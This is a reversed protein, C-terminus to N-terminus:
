TEHEWYDVADERRFYASVHREDADGGPPQGAMVGIKESDPYVLVDPDAMTSIALYRLPEDGTNEIQHAGEPGAPLAVYTGPQLAVRAQDPGRLEGEGDLVFVAEENATHYHYPWTHKGAPVAYVSCGLQESGAAEGLQQREFVAEGRATREGDVDSEHVSDM